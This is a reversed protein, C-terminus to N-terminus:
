YCLWAIIMVKCCVFQFDLPWFLKVFEYEVWIKLRHFSLCHFVMSNKLQAFHFARLWLILMCLKTWSTSKSLLLYVNYVQQKEKKTISIYFILIVLGIQPVCFCWSMWLALRSEGDVNSDFGESNLQYLNFLTSFDFFLTRIWVNQSEVLPKSSTSPIYM